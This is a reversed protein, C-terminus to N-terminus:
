RHYWRGAYVTCGWLQGRSISIYSTIGYKSCSCLRHVLNHLEYQVHSVCSASWINGFPACNSLFSLLTLWTSSRAIFSICLESLPGFAFGLVYVSVVFSELLNNDSHFEKMLAPVGPAPITSGLATALTNASVVLVTFWKRRMPWNKPNQAEGPEWDIINPDTPEEESDTTSTVGGSEVGGQKEFSDHRPEQNADLNISIEPDHGENKHVTKGPVTPLEPSSVM